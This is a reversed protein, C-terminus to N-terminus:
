DWLLDVDDTDIVRKKTSAKAFLEWLAVDSVVVDDSRRISDVAGGLLDLRAKAWWVFAHTDLLLPQPSM